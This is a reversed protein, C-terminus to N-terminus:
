YYAAAQAIRIKNENIGFSRLRSCSAENYSLFRGILGPPIDSGVLLEAQKKRKLDRDVGEGSWKVAMISPWDLIDNVRDFCCSPYFTTLSDVAHGDSFYYPIGNKDLDSVRVVMYVIDEPRTPKAVFNGGRQVVFLM